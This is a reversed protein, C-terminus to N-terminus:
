TRYNKSNKLAPCQQCYDYNHCSILRCDVTEHNLLLLIRELHRLRSGKLYWLDGKKLLKELIQAAEIVDKTWFAKKQPFGNKIAEGWVLRTLGGIGIFFNIDLNALKQGILRHEKEQYQGLEGMEGLVAIKRGRYPIEALTKLGAITSAPNARLSDNLLLTDKPGKELSMRGPLPTLKELNRAAKEEKIGLIKAVALAAMVEESFHRGILKTKVRVEKEGQRLGILFSTGRLEVKADKLWFDASKPGYSVIKAETKKAMQCVYPDAFNLVAWGTKPLAELLKGKEEIIGSLSGLLEKEAHVPSIGTLVGIQPRILRLHTEMEGRRDVGYELILAKNQPRIKLLTLPLNFVTDLNIDTALPSFKKGLAFKIARVTSTKGYSGTIGIVILNPFFARWIKAAFRQLCHFLKKFVAMM